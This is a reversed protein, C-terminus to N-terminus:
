TSLGRLRRINLGVNLLIPDLLSDRLARTLAAEFVGPDLYYPALHIRMCHATKDMSSIFGLEEAVLLVGLSLFQQM